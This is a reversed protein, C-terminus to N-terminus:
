ALQSKKIKKQKFKMLIARLVSDHANKFKKKCEGKIIEWM